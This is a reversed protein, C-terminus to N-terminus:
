EAAEQGDGSGAAPAALREAADEKTLYLLLDSRRSKDPHFEHCTVCRNSSVGPRHCEQCREIRPLNQITARDIPSEASKVEDALIGDAIPIATHCELCRVQLIHARHNFEARGLVAQDKQVRAITAREIKHCQQCPQTLQDVLQELEAAAEDSLDSRRESLALMLETEDLPTYPDDLARRVGRLLEEIRALEAQIAPEPRSRLGEAYGELTAVAERYLDETEGPEADPSARLLDALGADPYLARRLRRLNYLIWEDQHHVPSKSVRSGAQRYENPNAFLAWRTGPPQEEVLTALTVVGPADPGAIPLRTTATAATLHCADCHRDFDVALFRKGDPRPNHCYLCAREVDELGQRKMVERTHHIHTFSLADDDGDATFDFQPHARNFSGFAHCPLCRGDELRTIEAERGLHEAHCAACATEHESTKFRQFDNSRYLYHSAFSYVGLEDGYKEHCTSCSESSVEGFPTHCAACDQELTAHSSSLPGNSLFRAGRWRFDVFAFVALAAAAALGWVMMGRRSTPYLYERAVSLRVDSYSGKSARQKRAM